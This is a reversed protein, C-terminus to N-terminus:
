VLALESVAKPLVLIKLTKENSEPYLDFHNIHRLFHPGQEVIDDKKGYRSQGWTSQTGACNQEKLDLAQRNKNVEM